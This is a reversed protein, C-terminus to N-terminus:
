SRFGQLELDKTLPQEILPVCVTVRTGGQPSSEIAFVGQVLNARERMSVLGLGEQELAHEVDFGAGYDVVELWIEGNGGSLSVRFDTTGSYKLANQLAEQTVRFLSLSVMQFKRETASFNARVRADTVLRLQFRVRAPM